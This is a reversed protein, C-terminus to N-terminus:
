IHEIEEIPIVCSVACPCMSAKIKIKKHVELDVGHDARCRNPPESSGQCWRGWGQSQVLEAAASTEIKSPELVVKAALRRDGSKLKKEPM